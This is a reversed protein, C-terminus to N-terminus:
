HSAFTMEHHSPLPQVLLLRRAVLVSRSRTSLRKVRLPPLPPNAVAVVAQQQRPYVSVSNHLPWRIQCVMVCVVLTLGCGCDVKMCAAIWAIAWCAM